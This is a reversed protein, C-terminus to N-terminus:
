RAARRHTTRDGDQCRVSPPLADNVRMEVAVHRPAPGVPTSSTEQWDLDPQSLLM